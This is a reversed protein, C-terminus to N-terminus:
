MIITHGVSFMTLHLCTLLPASEMKMMLIFFLVVQLLTCLVVLGQVGQKLFVIAHIQNMQTMQTVGNFVLLNRHHTSHAGTLVTLAALFVIMAENNVVMLVERHHDMGAIDLVELVM